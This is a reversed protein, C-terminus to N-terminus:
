SEFVMGAVEEEAMVVLGVPSAMPAHIDTAPTAHEPNLIIRKGPPAMACARFLLTDVWRRAGAKGNQTVSFNHYPPTLESSVSSVNLLALHRHMNESSWFKNEGLRRSNEIRQSHDPKLHPWGHVHRDVEDDYKRKRPLRTGLSSYSLHCLDPAKV